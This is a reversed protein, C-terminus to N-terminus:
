WGGYLYGAAGSGGAGAGAAAFLGFKASGVPM